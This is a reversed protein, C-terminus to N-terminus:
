AYLNAASLLLRGYWLIVGLAVMPLTKRLPLGLMGAAVVLLNGLPVPAAVLLLFGYRRATRQLMLFTPAQRPATPIRMMLVGLGWNFLHGLMAGMIAVLVPLELATDGFSKMAYITAESALPVVSAHHAAEFFITTLATM